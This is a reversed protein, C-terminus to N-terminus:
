LGGHHFKALAVATDIDVIGLNTRAGAATTAGTGGDAVPVPLTIDGGDTATATELEDAATNWRISAGSSPEPFVIDKQASGEAFKPARGLEELSQQVLRVNQDLAREVAASPLPGGSPLEEDQTAPRDSKITLTEGIAPTNDNPATVLAIDGKSGSGGPQIVTYHTGRTLPTDVMTSDVTLIVKLDDDDWFVFPVVFSATAGDGAYQVIVKTDTLAM